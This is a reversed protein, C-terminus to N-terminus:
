AKRNSVGKRLLTYGDSGNDDDTNNCCTDERKGKPQVGPTYTMGFSTNNSIFETYPDPIGQSCPAGAVGGVGAGVMPLSKPTSPLALSKLCMPESGPNIM